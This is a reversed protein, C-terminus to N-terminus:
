NLLIRVYRPFMRLGNGCFSPEISLGRSTRGTFRWQGGSPCAKGLTLLGSSLPKRSALSSCVIVLSRVITLAFIRLLPFVDVYKPTRSTQTSSGRWTRRPCSRDAQRTACDNAQSSVVRAFPRFQGSVARAAFLHHIQKGAGAAEKGTLRQPFRLSERACTSRVIRRLLSTSISGFKVSDPWVSSHQGTFGVSAFSVSV